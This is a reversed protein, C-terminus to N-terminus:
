EKVVRLALPPERASMAMRTMSMLSPRFGCVRSDILMRFLNLVGKMMASLLISRTSPQTM